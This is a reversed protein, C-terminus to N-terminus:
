ADGAEFDRPFQAARLRQVEERDALRRPTADAAHLRAAAKRKAKIRVAEADGLRSKYFGPVCVRSGNVMLFDSPFADGAFKDFWASGIGPRRSMVSFEPRVSYIEGTEPNMRRLSQAKAEAAAAVAAKSRFGDGQAAEAHKLIYGAVYGASQLTLAGCAVIGCGWVDELLASRFLPDGNKGSGWPTRDDPDLCLGFFAAHYHPRLAKPSYEGSLFFRVGPGVRRRLRKMFDQSVKVSLSHDAPMFEDSYTLTAFHCTGPEHMQAEHMM